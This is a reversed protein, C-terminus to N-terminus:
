HSFCVDVCALCVPVNLRGGKRCSGFQRLWRSWAKDAVRFELVFDFLKEFHWVGCVNGSM